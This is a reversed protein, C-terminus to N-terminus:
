CSDDELTRGVYSGGVALALALAGLSGYLVVVAVALDRRLKWLRRIM